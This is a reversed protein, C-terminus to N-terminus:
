SKHTERYESPSIQLESKFVRNFHSQNNFGVKYAIEGINLDTKILFRKSENIRIRNLYTKFNCNYKEHIINTIHRPTVATKDAIKDLTLESNNYNTNIYEICKEEYGSRNTIELPKYSVTISAKKNNRLNILYLIGFNLLILTGYIIGLLSFLETNDRTFAISYIELAKKNDIDPAYASGINLHLIKNLEPKNKLTESIHHLDEWWEPHKLQKVPINYTHQRNLINLYSHYLTEEQNNNKPNDLPPTYISIGIRDINQGLINLSIQNYKGAKIYKNTEPSISIGVYPSLFGKRLLFKLKIVTDSVIYELVQSKGGNPEDTYYEYSFNELNPFIIQDKINIFYSLIGIFIITIIIAPKIFYKSKFIKFVPTKM